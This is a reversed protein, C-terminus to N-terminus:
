HHRDRRQDAGLRRLGPRAHGCHTHHTGVVNVQGVWHGPIALQGHHLNFAHNTTRHRQGTAKTRAEIRIRSPHDDLGIDDLQFATARSHDGVPTHHPGQHAEHVFHRRLRPDGDGLPRGPYWGLPRLLDTPSQVIVADAIAKLRGAVPLHQGVRFQFADVQVEDIQVVVLRDRDLWGAAPVHEIGVVYGVGDQCAVEQDAHRHDLHDAGDAHRVGHFVEDADRRPQDVAERLHPAIRTAADAPQRVRGTHQVLHDCIQHRHGPHVVGHDIGDHAHLPGFRIAGAVRHPEVGNDGAAVHHRHVRDRGLQDAEVRGVDLIQVQSGELSHALPVGAADLDVAAGNGLHTGAELFVRRQTAVVTVMTVITLSAAGPEQTTGEAIRLSLYLIGDIRGIGARRGALPSPRGGHVEVVVLDVEVLVVVVGGVAGHVGIRLELGRAGFLDLEPDAGVLAHLHPDIALQHVLVLAAATMAQGVIARSDLQGLSVIDQEHPCLLAAAAKIEAEIDAFHLVVRAIIAVADGPKVEGHRGGATLLILCDRLEGRGAVLGIPHRWTGCDDVRHRHLTGVVRQGVDELGRVPHQTARQRGLTQAADRSM